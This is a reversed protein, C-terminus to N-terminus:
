AKLLIEVQQVYLKPPFEQPTDGTLSMGRAILPRM